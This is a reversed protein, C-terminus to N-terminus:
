QLTINLAVRIFCSNIHDSCLPVLQIDGVWKDRVLGHSDWWSKCLYRTCKEISSTYEGATSYQILARLVSANVSVSSDRESKYTVYHENGEFQEIMPQVSRQVGLSHLTRLAMATTDPDPCFGQDLEIPTLGLHIGYLPSLFHCLSSRVVGQLEMKNMLFRKLSIKLKRLADPDLM